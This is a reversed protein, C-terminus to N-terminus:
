VNVADRDLMEAFVTKAMTISLREGDVLDLLQALREPRIKLTALTAGRTRMASLLEGMVWNAVVKPAHHAKLTAEFFDAVSKEATLVGADYASLEYARMFRERRAQPFEPLRQRVADVTQREVTFPVLDPEPFYRYEQAEEKSRMSATRDDDASWLRTEQVLPKGAQIAAVQRTAEFTLAARVAKFSNLNKIEVKIGLDTTGVPRVSINADCRLSGKEMDCSSVELYELLTKLATLYDYAADASRLDPESVIELLPTGARNFDVLSHTGAPDHMLKGADEELHVRRIRVEDFAEGRAVALVGQTALPRDYQSIQFNKPVDPYFYNKRDFKVFSAITCGLALAVKLALEFMRANLVPLSGPLGLCVPCTLSNPPAGFQVACGCFAKSATALQVHVELGIVSEFAVGM